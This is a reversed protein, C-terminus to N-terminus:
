HSITPGIFRLPIEYNQNSLNCSLEISFFSHLGFYNVVSRGFWKGHHRSIHSQGKNILGGYVSYHPSIVVEVLIVVYNVCVMNELIHLPIKTKSRLM